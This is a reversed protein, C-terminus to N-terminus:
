VPIGVRKMLDRVEPRNRISRLAPTQELFPMSSSRQRYAEELNEIARDADGAAAWARALSWPRIEGGGSALDQLEGASAHAAAHNGAESAVLARYELYPGDIAVMSEAQRLMGAAEDHKRDLAYALAMRLCAPRMGPELELAQSLCQIAEGYRRQLILLDGANMLLGVNLPDSLVAKDVLAQSQEYRGSVLNVNAALIMMMELNPKISLASQILEMARQFDWDHFFSVAALHGMADANHPDVALARESFERVKPIGVEAAEASYHVLLMHCFAMGALAPAHDPRADLVDAFCAMAQRLSAESRRSAHHMGQLYRRMLEDPLAETEVPAAAPEALRANIQTSIHRTVENLVSLIDGAPRAWTEAWTHADQAADILQVVIQLKDGLQLLSGEIVWRIGLKGHLVAMDPQKGKFSMSTSRSIVRLDMAVALRAILLETLGDALYEDRGHAALNQFPLVLVGDATKETPGEVPTALRYGKRPVTVIYRSNQPQDGLATRLQSIARNLVHDTVYVRQWVADILAERSVTDTGAAALELLVAMSKPEVRQEGDGNVILNESPRVRCDGIAFGHQLGTAM